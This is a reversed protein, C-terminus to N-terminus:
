VNRGVKYKAVSRYEEEQEQGHKLRRVHDSGKSGVHIRKVWNKVWGNRKMQGDDPV